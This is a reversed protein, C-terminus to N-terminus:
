DSLRCRDFGTAGRLFDATMMRKRGEMQLESVQLWADSAAIRLVGGDVQLTGPAPSSGSPFDVPTAAYIKLVQVAGDPTQVSTWAAPYPSLGRIHNYVERAPRTWDIRCTERFIKPAPRLDGAAPQPHSTVTGDEVAQVTELLLSAGEAMLRDHLTGATDTDAIAVRHSGIIEGSDIDRDIFFTTVGTVPEGNMLAWNIPAAGRYQPLLSAHVNLTGCAPMRWVVEPLMRFAVVVQLDAGYRRLEELFAEDRLREPQLVPIGQQLAYEKVVSGRLQRGRGAPKDVATVVAVVPYGEEVLARLSAVAFDPTGMFVIKLHHPTAM